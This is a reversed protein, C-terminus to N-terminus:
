IREPDIRPPSSTSHPHAALMLDLLTQPDHSELLLARYKSKILRQTVAHDLFKLLHDYFGSVNLLGVPKAHLKLQAWTLIEALEELTGLGGPLAIFGDALNEMLAKRQHMSQVVRLESLEIEGIDM